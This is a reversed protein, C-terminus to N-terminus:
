RCLVKGARVPIKEGDPDIYYAWWYGSPAYEGSPSMSGTLAEPITVKIRTREDDIVEWPFQAIIPGDVQDTSTMFAHFEAVDGIPVYTGDEKFLPFSDEWELLRTVQIDQPVFARVLVVSEAM